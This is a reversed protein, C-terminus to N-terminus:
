GGKCLRDAEQNSERPVWVLEWDGLQDLLVLIKDRLLRLHYARCRWRGNVQEVVLKSDGKCILKGKLGRLVFAELGELLAQYEALNNTVTRNPSLSGNGQSHPEAHNNYLIWAWRGKGGQQGPKCSGDFYLTWM